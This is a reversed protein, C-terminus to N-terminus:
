GDTTEGYIKHLKEYQKRERAEKKERKIKNTERTKAEAKLRTQYEKDTELREGKLHYERHSWDFVFRLNRWEGPWRQEEELKKMKEIIESPTKAFYLHSFESKYTAPILKKPM